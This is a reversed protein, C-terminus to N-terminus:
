RAARIRELRWKGSGSGEWTVLYRRKWLIASSAKSISSMMNGALWGMALSCMAVRDEYSALAKAFPHRFTPVVLLRDIEATSLVYAAALVHAVHPPNFSGGFIAITESM